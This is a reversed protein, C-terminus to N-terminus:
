QWSVRVQMPGGNWRASKDSDMIQKLAVEYLPKWMRMVTENKTWLGAFFMSGSLYTDPHNTLIWNTPDDDSLAPIRIYYAIEVEATPTRNLRIEDGSITYYEPNGAALTPYFESMQQPTMYMLTKVPSSNVQVGRMELFDSPLEEYGEDFTTTARVEMQAVRIRRNFDAECLAIFDTIVGTMGSRHMWDAVSSKLESYTSLAM